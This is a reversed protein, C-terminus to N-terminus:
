IIGNTFPSDLQQRHCFNSISAILCWVQGLVGCPSTVFVCYFMVYLLALLNVREWCTVLLSFNVSLFVGLQTYQLCLYVWESSKHLFISSAVLVVGSRRCDFVSKVISSCPYFDSSVTNEITLHFDIVKNRCIKSRREDITNM